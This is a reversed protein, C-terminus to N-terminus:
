NESSSSGERRATGAMLLPSLDTHVNVTMERKLQM